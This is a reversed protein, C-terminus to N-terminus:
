FRGGHGGHSRGSSSHHVSSGSTSTNQQRPTKSVQSYLFIDQRVNLQFSDHLMYNNASRQKKITNMSSRMILLSIGAAAAGILLSILIAGGFNRDSSNAGSTTGNDLYRPLASLYSEFGDYYYGYSIDSITADALYDVENDSILQIASGSTSIYWERESMALLFLIGDNRFGNYDYFDDAYDRAYSGNLSDVTLIVIDIQYRDTLEQAHNELMSIEQDSLLGVNDFIHNSGYAYVTFPISFVLILIILPIIKKM